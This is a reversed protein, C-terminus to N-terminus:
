AAEKEPTVSKMNESKKTIYFIYGRSRSLFSKRVKEEETSNFLGFVDKFIVTGRPRHAWQCEM